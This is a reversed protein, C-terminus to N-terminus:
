YAEYKLTGRRFFLPVISPAHSYTYIWMGSGYSRVIASLIQRVSADVRTVNIPNKPPPKITGKSDSDLNVPGATIYQVQEIPIWAVDALHGISSGPFQETGVFLAIHKDLPSREPMRPRFILVGNSIEWLYQPHNKVLENLYSRVNKNDMRLVYDPTEIFSDSPLREEGCPIRLSRCLSYFGDESSTPLFLAPVNTELVRPDLDNKIQPAAFAGGCFFSLILFLVPASSASVEV